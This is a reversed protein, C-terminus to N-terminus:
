IISEGKKADEETSQWTTKVQLEAEEEVPTLLVRSAQNRLEIYVRRRAENHLMSDTEVRGLQDIVITSRSFGCIRHLWKFVTRGEPLGLLVDVARRVEDEEHKLRERLIQQAKQHALKAEERISM